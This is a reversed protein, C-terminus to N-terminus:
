ADGVSLFRSAIPKTTADVVFERLVRQGASTEIFARHRQTPHLSLEHQVVVCEEIHMAKSLDTPMAARVAKRSMGPKTYYAVCRDGIHWVQECFVVETAAVAECLNRVFATFMHRNLM